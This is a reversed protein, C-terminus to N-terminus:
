CNRRGNCDLISTKVFTGFDITSFQLFRSASSVRACIDRRATSSIRDSLEPLPKPYNAAQIMEQEEARAEAEENLEDEDM